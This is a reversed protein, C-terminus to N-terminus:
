PYDPFQRSPFAILRHRCAYSSEFVPKFRIDCQLSNEFLASLFHLIALRSGLAAMTINLKEPCFFIVLCYCFSIRSLCSVYIIKAADQPRVVKISGM